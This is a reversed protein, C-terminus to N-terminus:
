LGSHSLGVEPEKNSGSQSGTAGMLVVWKESGAKRKTESKVKEGVTENQCVRAKLTIRSVVNSWFMGAVYCFVLVLYDRPGM